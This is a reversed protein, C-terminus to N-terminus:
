HILGSEKAKKGWRATARNIFKKLSLGIVLSSAAYIAIMWADRAVLDWLIGGVAERMMSIAYTFPLFPHIAQFFPPTVQIPFTGGSGALQLVLLVISIAKGVNGFVSVLTYVILMFVISLLLGFCVFWFKNVVYTGLLFIDGLAVLLSQLMALTMFTLYRGFYIQYSKLPTGTFVPEHVEVTLLSVLLLAGVWLSLTTFFPSIASGYNPIPFIKNEKLVVPEAFFESEKEANNKLLDILQDLTGEKELSRILDALAHIRAKITPWNKQLDQLQDEGVTLGKASDSLLRQIDPISKNVEALVQDANRTMSLAKNLAQLIQPQIESDYHQLLDGILTYTNQSFQHLSNIAEAAPKEGKAIAQQISQVLLLQQQLRNKILQLKGTVWSLRDNGTLHNMEDFLDIMKGTVDSAAMLRRAALDLTSTVIAPDIHSQQLIGTLQETALAAQQLLLLNQKIIPSLNPIEEASRSLWDGLRESFLQGDQTLQAFLPLMAQAKQVLLNMQHLDRSAVNMTQDVEPIMAEMRFVLDRVQEVTPKQLELEVGIENLIRFITGDAIRIFNRSMEEVISSAGKSTIKPAVANIKENVYYIIEAKQPNDSLVTAIKASFDSPIIICAYYDGHRVGEIARKEDVFTWGISHNEKLSSIIEDGIHLPHGRLVAGNDENSVAVPLSGTQGYPDWSAKINFWAYLSPLGVLGLIIVMAVWNKVLNRIDRYYILFIPKM